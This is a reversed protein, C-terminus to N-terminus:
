QLIVPHSLGFAILTTNLPGDISKIASNSRLKISAIFTALFTSLHWNNTGPPPDVSAPMAICKRDITLLISPSFSLSLFSTYIAQASANQKIGVIIATLLPNLVASPTIFSSSIAWASLLYAPIFPIVPRTSSM